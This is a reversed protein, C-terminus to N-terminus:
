ITPHINLHKVIREIDEDALSGMNDDDSESTEEDTNLEVRSIRKCSVRNKSKSRIERTEQANQIENRKNRQESRGCYKQKEVDRERQTCGLLITENEVSIVNWGMLKANIDKTSPVVDIM